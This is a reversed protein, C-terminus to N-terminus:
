RKRQRRRNSTTPRKSDIRKSKINNELIKFGLFKSRRHTDASVREESPTRITETTKRSQTDKTAGAIKRRFSQQNRRQLNELARFQTRNQGNVLARLQNKPEDGDLRQVFLPFFFGTKSLRM